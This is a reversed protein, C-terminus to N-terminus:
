SSITVATTEFKIAGSITDAVDSFWKGIDKIFEFESLSDISESVFTGITEALTTILEIVSDIVKGFPKFVKSISNGASTIFKGMASTASLTAKTLPKFVNWALKAGVTLVKVVIDKVFKLITFLGEFTNTIKEVTDKNVKLEKTFDRFRVIVNYLDSSEFGRFVNDWAKKVAEIVTKLSDFINKLGEIAVERGGLERISSLDDINRLLNITKKNAEELAKLTEKDIIGTVQLGKAKQFAKISNETVKGIIGDVGNLQEGFEGCQYGADKLAQQIKKVDEGKSGLKITSRM